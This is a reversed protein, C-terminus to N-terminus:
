QTQHIICIYQQVQVIVMHWYQVPIYEVITNNGIFLLFEDRRM